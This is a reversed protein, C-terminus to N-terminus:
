KCEDVVRAGFQTMKTTVSRQLGTSSYGDINLIGNKVLMDIIRMAKTKSRVCLEKSSIAPDQAKIMEEVGNQLLDNLWKRKVGVNGSARMAKLLEIVKSAFSGMEKELLQQLPLVTSPPMLDDDSSTSQVPAPLLKSAAFLDINVLFSSELDPRHMYAFGEPLEALFRRQYSSHRSHGYLQENELGLLTAMAEADDRDIQKFSILSSLRALVKIPMASASQGSIVFNRATKAINNFYKSIAQQQRSGSHQKLEDPLLKDIEPMVLLIPRKKPAIEILEQLKLVILAKAVQKEIGRIRSLDIVIKDKGLLAPTFASSDHMAYLTKGWGMFNQQLFLVLSREQGDKADFTFDGVFELISPIKDNSIALEVYEQLKTAFLAMQDPTWGGIVSLITGLMMEHYPVLSSKRGASLAQFSAPAVPNIHLTTGATFVTAGPMTFDGHDDLVIITCPNQVVLLLKLLAVRELVKGGFVGFGGTLHQFLIGIDTTEKLSEPEIVKGLRIDFPLSGPSHVEVPTAIPIDPALEKPMTIIDTIEKGFFYACKNGAMANKFSAGAFTAQLISTFTNQMCAFDDQDHATVTAEFGVRWVGNQVRFLQNVKDKSCDRLVAIFEKNFGAAVLFWWPKCARLIFEYTFRLSPDQKASRIVNAHKFDPYLPLQKWTWKRRLRPADPLELKIPEMKLLRPMCRSLMFVFADSCSIVLILTSTFEGAKDQATTTAAVLWIMITILLMCSARLVLPVFSRKVIKRSPKAAKKKLREQLALLMDPTMDDFDIPVNRQRM